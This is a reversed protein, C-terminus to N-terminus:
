SAREFALKAAHAIEYSVETDSMLGRLWDQSMDYRTYLNHGIILEITGSAAFYWGELIVDQKFDKNLYHNGWRDNGLYTPVTVKFTLAKHDAM